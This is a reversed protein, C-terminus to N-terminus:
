LWVLVAFGGRFYYTNTCHRNPPSGTKLDSGFAAEIDKLTLTETGDKDNYTFVLRDDYVYVSNLFTDIIEKQYDKDDISGYKYKSIWQVIEEKTYKPRKTRAQLISCKLEERQTELQELREKTSPTLIGAQIANLLNAIGKECEHLQHELAPTMTDEENQMTVITDAIRDINADTLATQVTLLVAVREIWDKRLPKRKCGLRRKAGGCKYYHYKVGRTGSTGSEGAMLRGCTGCFLKTTLLYEETAKARAPAKKNAKMRKQVREFLDQGIIAPIGDPIIM